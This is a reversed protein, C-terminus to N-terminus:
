GAAARNASVQLYEAVDKTKLLRTACPDGLGSPPVEATM